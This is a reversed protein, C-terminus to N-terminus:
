AGGAGDAVTAGSPGTDQTVGTVPRRARPRQRRPSGRNDEHASSSGRGRRRSGSRSSCAARRSGARGLGQRRSEPLLWSGMRVTRRQAFRQAMLGFAGIPQGVRFALLDLSRTEPTGSRAHAGTTDSSAASTYPRRRADLRVDHLGDARTAARAPRAGPSRTWSPTPAWGCCSGPTRRSLGSPPWSHMAGAEVGAARGGDGGAALM